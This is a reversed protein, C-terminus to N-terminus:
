KQPQAQGPQAPPQAPQAPPLAKKMKEQMEKLKEIDPPTNPPFKPRDIKPLRIVKFPIKVEPTSKSTTKVILEKDKLSENMPIDKVLLLYDSPAREKVEVQIEPTPPVVETIQFEKERGAKVRLYQQTKANPDEDDVRVNITDPAVDIPGISRGYVTVTIKKFSNVANPDQGPKQPLTADTEIYLPKNFTIGPEIPKTPTLTIKYHKGQEVTELTHQFEPLQSMDVNTINFTLTPINSKIEITQPQPMDEMIQGLNIVRPEVLIASTATGKLTLTLQPTAPDNSDVTIQKAIPGQRGALTLTAKIKTTDGPAIEKKEPQAVTCGCTTKVNSIKLLGDGANKIVFEHEVKEDNSREGFDFEPEDCTIKPTGGTSEVSATAEKQAPPQQAQPKEAPAEKAPSPAPTTQAPKQEPTPPTPTPTSKQGGCSSLLGIMLFLVFLGLFVKLGKSM